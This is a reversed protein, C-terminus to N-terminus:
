DTLDFWLPNYLNLLASLGVDRPLDCRKLDEKAWLNPYLRPDKTMDWGNQFPKLLDFCAKNPTSYLNWKTLLQNEQWPDEVSHVFNIFQHALWLNRSQNHIVMTDTWWRSGQIPIVYDVPMPQNQDPRSAYTVDGSWAQNLVASGGVLSLTDETSNYDFLNPKCEFLSKGMTTVRATDTENSTWQPGDPPFSGTPTLGQAEQWEWGVKKFGFCYVDRMDELMRMKKRLEVRGYGAAKPQYSDMWFFDVGLAEVEDKPILDTRFAIGTTGWFYPISVFDGGIGRKDIPDERPVSIFQPDLNKFNPIWELNLNYIMNAKKLLDVVHNTPFFVDYRRKGLTIWEFLEENSTYVDWQVSVQLGYTQKMYKEFDLLFSGPWYDYWQAVKLLHPTRGSLDEPLDKTGALGYDVVGPGKEWAPTPEKPGRVINAASLTGMGALAGVVGAAATYKLFSRRGIRRPSGDQSTGGADQM